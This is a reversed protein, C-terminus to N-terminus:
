PLQPEFQLLLSAVSVMATSLACLDDQESASRESLLQLQKVLTEKITERNM